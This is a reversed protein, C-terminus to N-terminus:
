GRGSATSCPRRADPGDWAAAIEVVGAALAPLQAALHDLLVRARVIFM